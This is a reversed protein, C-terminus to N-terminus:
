CAIWNTCLRTCLSVYHSFFGTIWVRFHLYLRWKIYLHWPPPSACRLIEKVFSQSDVSWVIDFMRSIPLRVICFGSQWVWSANAIRVVACPADGSVWLTLRTCPTPYLSGNYRGEAAWTCWVFLFHLDSLERMFFAESGNRFPPRVWPHDHQTNRANTLIFYVDFVFYM